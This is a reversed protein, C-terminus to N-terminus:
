RKFVSLLGHSVGQLPSWWCLEEARGTFTPALYITLYLKIHVYRSRNKHYSAHDGAESYANKKIIPIKCSPSVVSFIAYM